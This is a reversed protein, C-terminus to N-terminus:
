IKRAVAIEEFPEIIDGIQFDNFKELGIGCEYGAAVEVVDEKFRKLSGIKGQHIVSGNRLVRVVANRLVVGHLVYCGAVVGIKPIRFLQRVEAQGLVREEIVPELLGEMAAKIDSIAEYIISYLRVEVKETELLEEAKSTPRTNFGIIIANAASALMVDSETIDGVGSYIVKLHVDETSLKELSNALAETSGQVDAKLIINLEKVDGKKIQDYLQELTVTATKVLGEERQRQARIQSIERAKKEDGVVMFSDGANPVGAIGLVEIPISPGAEKVKKGKSNIMARVKGYHRGAVFSDGIKLVGSQLLVTAVPGKSKDLEAEIIVGRPLRNIPAKLDLIEAQLLIMDLLDEIGLRKKASVEVFITEGGWEEPVLGMESLEKKVKEPNANPKDIKNIAVVIPVNANKAHAVAERTQPMVGDDAAVVLVVIDTVQAGRARMAAFAEHGPTDLFVIKGKKTDVEYAGIHQTIGGIEQGTVNTHRIADLLLTKGHDVHGMVTVVPPRTVLVEEQESTAALTLLEDSHLPLIEAEYGYKQALAQTIEPDLVQNIHSMIGMDMLNKIIEKSKCNLSEALQKVTINEGLKIKKLSVLTEEQPAPPSIEGKEEEKETEKEAETEKEEVPKVLPKEELSETLVERVIEATEEDISSMHSKVNIGQKHLEELLHKSEIGLEKALLYIRINAM